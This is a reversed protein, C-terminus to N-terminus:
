HVTTEDAAGDEATRRRGEQLIEVISQEGKVELKDNFLGEIRALSNLVALPDTTDIKMKFVKMADDGKGMNVIDTALGTVLKLEDQGAGTFDWYLQGNKDVKKYQALKINAEALDMMRRIIWGRDLQTDKALGENRKAIERVVAPHDFLEKANHTATVSSYGAALIANRKHYGNGLYETVLRHQKDSLPRFLKQVPKEPEDKPTGFRAM